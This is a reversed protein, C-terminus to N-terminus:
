PTSSRAGLRRNREREQDGLSVGRRQPQARQRRRALISNATPTSRNAPARRPRPALGDPGAGLLSRDPNWTPSSGRCSDQDARSDNYACTNRTKRKPRGQLDRDWSNYALTASRENGAQLGGTSSIARTSRATGSRCAVKRRALRKTKPTKGGTSSATHRRVSIPRQRVRRHLRLKPGHVALRGGLFSSPTQHVDDDSGPSDDRIEEPAGHRVRRLRAASCRCDLVRGILLRSFAPRSRM